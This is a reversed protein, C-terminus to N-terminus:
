AKHLPVLSWTGNRQLANFKAGMAERWEVHKVAQSYSTPECLAPNYAIHLAYKPNPRIIGSKGRTVM